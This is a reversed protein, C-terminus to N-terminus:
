RADDNSEETVRSELEAIRRKLRTAVAKHAAASRRAYQSAEIEHRWAAEYRELATPLPLKMRHGQPCFFGQGREKCRRVFWQPVYAVIGCDPCRISELPDTHTQTM